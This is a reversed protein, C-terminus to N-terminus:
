GLQQSICYCAHMGDRMMNAKSISPTYAWKSSVTHPCSVPSRSHPASEDDISGLGYDDGASHHLDDPEHDTGSQQLAVLVYILVERQAHTHRTHVHAHAHVHAHTHPRQTVDILAPPPPVEVGADVHRRLCWQGKCV